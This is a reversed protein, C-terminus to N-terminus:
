LLVLLMLLMITKLIYTPIGFKDKLIPALVKAPGGIVNILKPQVKKGYLLEKVTYVPQSNINVLLKDVKNKIIDAM